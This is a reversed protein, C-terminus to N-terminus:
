EFRFDGSTVPRGDNWRADRRIHYTVAFPKKTVRAHPVLWPRYTLDPAVVYPSAFVAQTAYGAFLGASGVTLWNLTEPEFAGIVVTGCYRPKPHAKAAAAGPLAVLAAAGLLAVRIM